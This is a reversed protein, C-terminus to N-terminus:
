TQKPTRYAEWIQIEMDKGLCPRKETTIENFMNEIGEDQPEEERAIRIIHINSIKITDWLDNINQKNKRIKEKNINSHLIKDIKDGFRSIRNEM